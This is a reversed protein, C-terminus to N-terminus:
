AWFRVWIKYNQGCYFLIHVCGIKWCKGRNREGNNVRGRKHSNEGPYDLVNESLFNGNFISKKRKKFM